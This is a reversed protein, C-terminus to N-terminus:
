RGILRRDGRRCSPCLDAVEHISRGVLQRPALPLTNADRARQRLTAVGQHEVLGRGEEVHCVLHGDELEHRSESALPHRHQHDCM